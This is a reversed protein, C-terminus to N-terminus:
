KNQMGEKTPLSKKFKNRILKVLEKEGHITLKEVLYTYEEM